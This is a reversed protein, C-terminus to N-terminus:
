LKDLESFPRRTVAVELQVGKSSIFRNLYQLAPTDEEVNLGRAADGNIAIGRVEQRFEVIEEDYIEQFLPYIATTRRDIKELVKPYDTHIYAETFAVVRDSDVDRRFSTIKFWEQGSPCELLEAVDKKATIVQLGFYELKANFFKKNSVEFARMVMNGINPLTRNVRTGGRRRISVLGMNKLEALSRRITQTGVKYEAALQTVTPLLEGSGYVGSAIEERLQNALQSYLPIGNRARSRTEQHRM